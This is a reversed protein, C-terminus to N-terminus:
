EEEDEIFAVSVKAKPDEPETQAQFGDTDACAMTYGNKKYFAIRRFGQNRYLSFDDWLDIILPTFRRDAPKQRQIRGVSQEISSIPSAFVLTNLSPVDFGESVLTYTGLIIDKSESNKLEEPKM